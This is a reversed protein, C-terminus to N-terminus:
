VCYQWSAKDKSVQQMNRSCVAASIHSEMAVTRPRPLSCQARGGMEEGEGRGTERGKRGSCRVESKSISKNMIVMKAYIYDREQYEDLSSYDWM